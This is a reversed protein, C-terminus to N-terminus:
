AGGLVVVKEQALADIEEGGLGLECLV